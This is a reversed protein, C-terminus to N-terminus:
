FGLKKMLRRCERCTVEDPGGASTEVHTSTEECLPGYPDSGIFHLTATAPM